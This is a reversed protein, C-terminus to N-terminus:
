MNDVHQLARSSCKEMLLNCPPNSSLKPNSKIQPNQSYESYILIPVYDVCRNQKVDPHVRWKRQCGEAGWTNCEKTHCYLNQKTGKKTLNITQIGMIAHTKTVARCRLVSASTHGACKKRETAPMAAPLFATKSPQVTTEIARWLTEMITKSNRRTNTFQQLRLYPFLNAVTKKKAHSRASRDVSCLGISFRRFQM